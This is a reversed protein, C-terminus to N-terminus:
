IYDITKEYINKLENYLLSNINSNINKNTIEISITFIIIPPKNQKKEKLTKWIFANGIIYCKNQIQKIFFKNKNFSGYSNKITEGNLLNIKDQILIGM